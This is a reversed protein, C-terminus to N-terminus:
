SPTPCRQAILDQLVADRKNLADIEKQEAHSVDIMIPLALAVPAAAFLAANNNNSHTKEQGLEVIRAQNVRLEASLHNCTLQGDLPTTAAIPRAM